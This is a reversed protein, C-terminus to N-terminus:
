ERRGHREGKPGAEGNAGAMRGAGDVGRM